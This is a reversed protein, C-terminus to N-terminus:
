VMMLCHTLAAVAIVWGVVAGRVMWTRKKKRLWEYGDKDLVLMMMMWKSTM